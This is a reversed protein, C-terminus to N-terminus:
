EIRICFISAALKTVGGTVSCKSPHFDSCFTWKTERSTASLLYSLFKDRSDTHRVLMKQFM